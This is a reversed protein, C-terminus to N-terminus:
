PSSLTTKEKAIKVHTRVLGQWEVPCGAVAAIKEKETKAKRFADAYFRPSHGLRMAEDINM